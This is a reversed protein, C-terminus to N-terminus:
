RRPIGLFTSQTPKALEDLDGASIKDKFTVTKPKKVTGFTSNPNLKGPTAQLTDKIFNEEEPTAESLGDEWREFASDYITPSLEEPWYELFQWEEAIEIPTRAEHTALEKGVIGWEPASGSELLNELKEVAYELARELM